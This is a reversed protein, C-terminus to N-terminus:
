CQRAQLPLHMTKAFRHTFTCPLTPTPSQINALKLPLLLLLLLLLLM